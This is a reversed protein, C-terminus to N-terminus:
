VRWFVSGPFVICVWCFRVGWLLRFGGFFLDSFVHLESFFLGGFILASTFVFCVEFFSGLFIAFGFLRWSSCFVPGFLVLGSFVYASGFFLGSFDSGLVSGGLFRLGGFVSGLSVM